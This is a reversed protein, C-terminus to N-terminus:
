IGEGMHGYAVDPPMPTGSPAYAPMDDAKPRFKAPAGTAVHRPPVDRNVLAHAGVISGRGVHVNGLVTAKAALFVGDGIKPHRDFGAETGTAGLTVDHMLYVNDGIVSTEGIVCGGAHDMTIGRGWRSGPHIDVDFTQAMKSQVASALTKGTRGPLSWFHHAVRASQVSHFGKFFLYVRLLGGAAPDLELSRTLDCAAADVIDPADLYTDLCMRQFDLDGHLQGGLTASLGEALSDHALVRKEIISILGYSYQRRRLQVAEEAEQRLTAWASLATPTTHRQM